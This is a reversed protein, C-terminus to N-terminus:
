TTINKIGKLVLAMAIDSDTTYMLTKNEQDSLGNHLDKLSYNKVPNFITPSDSVNTTILDCILNAAGGFGGLIYIAKKSKVSLLFEELIGPMSGVYDSIKGGLIVHLDISNILYKRAISLNNPVTDTTKGTEILNAYKRLYNLQKVTLEKRIYSPIILNLNKQKKSDFEHLKEEVNLLIHNFSLDQDYNPNGAYFVNFALAFFYKIFITMIDQIKLVDIQSSTNSYSISIGVNLKKKTILDGDKITSFMIPTMYNSKNSIKGLIDLEDNSIPPEPYIYLENPDKHNLITLLEPPQNMLKFKKNNVDLLDILYKTRITYYNIRINELLIATLLKYYRIHEPNLKIIKVNGLYPFLRNEGEEYFDLLIIPREYEKASIIEKKCWDRSSFGDTLFVIIISEKISDYIKMDFREGYPIDHNDYFTKLKTNNLIESRVKEVIKLGTQKSHSLFLNIDNSTNTFTNLIRSVEYSVTFQFFEVKNTTTVMVYNINDFRDFDAFPKCDFAFPIIKVNHKEPIANLFVNWSSKNYIYYDDILVFILNQINEDTKISTSADTIYDIPIGIGRETPNDVARSMLGYVQNAFFLGDKFENDWVIFIKLPNLTKNM